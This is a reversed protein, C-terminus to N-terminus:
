GLFVFSEFVFEVESGPLLLKVPVGSEEDLFLLSEEGAFQGRLLWLGDPQQTPLPREGEPLLLAALASVGRIVPLTHAGGFADLNFSLGRYALEVGGQRFIYEFGAVSEPSLVEVRTTDPCPRHIHTHTEMGGARVTAYTEYFQTVGGMLERARAEDTFPLATCGIMPLVLLACFFLARLIKM